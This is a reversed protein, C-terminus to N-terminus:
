GEDHDAKGSRSPLSQLDIKYSQSKSNFMPSEIQFTLAMKRDFIYNSISYSNIECKCGVCHSIQKLVNTYEESTNFWTFTMVEYAVHFESIRFIEINKSPALYNYIETSKRLTM